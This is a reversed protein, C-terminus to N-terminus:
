EDKAGLFEKTFEFRFDIDILIRHPGDFPDRFLTVEIHVTVFASFANPVIQQSVQSSFFCAVEGSGKEKVSV